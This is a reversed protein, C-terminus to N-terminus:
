YRQGSSSSVALGSVGESVLICETDSLTEVLGIGEEGGMVILATALADAVACSGSIVTASIVGSEAPRNTRPDFIHGYRKGDKIFFDEYDGSTAVARDVLELTTLIGDGRPHRIGVRWPAGGARRGLCYCDGGIDVLAGRVGGDRLLAAVMDVAYGKAIGGLDIKVGPDLFRVYYNGGDARLSVDSPEGVQAKREGPFPVKRGQESKFGWAQEAPLVCVNFAGGTIGSLELANRLVGFTRSAVSVEEVGAERNLRRVDSGDRYLSMLAELEEIEELAMESLRGMKGTIKELLTGVLTIRAQTGMATATYEWNLERTLVIAACGVAVLVLLTVGIRVRTIM